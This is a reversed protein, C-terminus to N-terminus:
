KYKMLASFNVMNAHKIAKNIALKLTEITNFKQYFLIIESGSSLKVLQLEGVQSYKIMYCEKNHFTDIIIKM